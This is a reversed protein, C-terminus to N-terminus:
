GNDTGGLLEHIGGLIDALSVEASGALLPLIQENEKVLHSDFRDRICMESGM